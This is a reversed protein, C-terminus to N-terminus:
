VVHDAIEDNNIEVLAYNNIRYSCLHSSFQEIRNIKIQLQRKSYGFRTM